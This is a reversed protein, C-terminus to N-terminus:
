CQKQLVGQVMARQLALAVVQELGCKGRVPSNRRGAEVRVGEYHIIAQMTDKRFLVLGGCYNGQQIDELLKILTNLTFKLGRIM